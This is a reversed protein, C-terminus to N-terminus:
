KMEILKAYIREMQAAHHGWNYKAVVRSRGAEGMRVRLRPDRMLRLIAKAAAQIDEKDVVIGTIDDDVVKPLGGVRSVLV